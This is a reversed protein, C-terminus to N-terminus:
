TLDNTALYLRQYGGSGGNFNYYGGGIDRLRILAARDFGLTRECVLDDDNTIWGLIANLLGAAIGLLAAWGAARDTDSGAQSMDASADVAWEAFDKLAARLDNYFGGSSHDAEWCEIETSLHQDVPGIFVYTTGANYNYDFEHWDGTSTAGYERTTFSKKAQKDSGASVGWYIEDRGVEGSEEVCYFKMMRLRVNLVGQADAAPAPGTLITIGRGYEGLATTFEESDFTESGALDAKSVDIIQVNPQACNEAALAPLEAKLDAKSYGKELPRSSIGEPLFAVPGRACADRYAQGFALLENEPLVVAATKLVRQELDTLPLGKDQRAAAHLLVGALLNSARNMRLRREGRSEKGQVRTTGALSANLRELRQEATFPSGSM